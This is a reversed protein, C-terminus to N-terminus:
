HANLSMLNIQNEELLAIITQTLYFQFLVVVLDSQVTKVTNHQYQSVFKSSFM